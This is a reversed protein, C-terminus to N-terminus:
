VVIVYQLLYKEKIDKDELILEIAQEFLHGHECEYYSYEALHLYKSISSGGSLLAVWQSKASVLHCRIIHREISHDICM